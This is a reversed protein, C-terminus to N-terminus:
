VLAEVFYGHVRRDGTLEPHFACLLLKGDRVLVPEGDIRALVEVAPDLPQLRPARIFVGELDGALPGEGRLTGCFSDIQRGYANRRVAVRALGLRVPQRGAPPPEGAERAPERGLLIAGACTGFCALDGAEARARIAPGLGTEELFKSLVTSEGGPLILGRAGELDAPRKVLRGPAGLRALAEMHLAFSGQLGLVGIM